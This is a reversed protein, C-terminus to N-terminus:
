TELNINQEEMKINRNCTLILLLFRLFWIVNSYRFLFYSNQLLFSKFLVRDGNGLYSSQLYIM